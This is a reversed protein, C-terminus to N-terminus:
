WFGVWRRREWRGAQREVGGWGMAEAMNTWREAIAAARRTAGRARAWREKVVDRARRVDTGRLCDAAQTRQCRGWQGSELRLLRAAGRMQFAQQPVGCGERRSCSSQRYTPQVRSWSRASQECSAIQASTLVISSKSGGPACGPVTGVSMSCAVPRSRSSIRPFICPMSMKSMLGKSELRTPVNTERQKGPYPTPNSVACYAGHLVGNHDIGGAVLLVNAAGAARGVRVFHEPDGKGTFLGHSAAHLATRRVLHMINARGVVVRVVVSVMTPRQRTHKPVHRRDQQCSRSSFGYGLGLFM